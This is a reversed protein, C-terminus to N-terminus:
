GHGGMLFDEHSTDEQETESISRFFNLACTLVEDNNKLQFIDKRFQAAGPYGTSFWSAFKKLQINLIHDNSQEALTQYLDLFLGHYNRKLDQRLNQKNYISFADAFILPNKLAGRGILVGDCGSQQLRDVASQASHIDGNGLIPIKSQAKVNPIFDWDALGSYGQARTRGHIAVWTIGEDYALQCVDLANRQQSDWGTRIKITVPIRVAKVCSSLVKQMTVLDKLMASGAGKKVVKPVPCGFNLDIFDAGQSEAVQAAKALIEPDEGFLQIGVPRQTEDYKMLSLTRESKYEIGTASILETVVLSVDLKKMFHRFSHDTIGAMPALVFPNQKLAQLPHIRNFQTYTSYLEPYSM